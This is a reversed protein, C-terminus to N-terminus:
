ISSLPLLMATSTGPPFGSPWHAPSGEGRVAAPHGVRLAGLRGKM